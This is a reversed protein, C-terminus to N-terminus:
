WQSEGSLASRSSQGGRVALLHRRLSPADLYLRLLVAIRIAIRIRHPLCNSVLNRLPSSRLRLLLRDHRTAVRFAAEQKEQRGKREREREIGAPIPSARRQICIKIGGPVRERRRRNPNGYVGLRQERIAFVIRRNLTM